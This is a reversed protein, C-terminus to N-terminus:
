IKYLRGVYYCVTGAYQGTIVERILFTEGGCTIKDDKKISDTSPIVIWADAQEVIGEKAFAFMQFPRAKNFYWNKNSVAAYTLTEDSMMNSTTKTVSYFGVTQGVDAIISVYDAANTM